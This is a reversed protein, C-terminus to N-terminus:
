KYDQIAKLQIPLEVKAPYFAILEQWTKFIINKPLHLDEISRIDRNTAPNNGDTIFVIYKDSDKARIINRYIQYQKLFEGPTKIKDQLFKPACEMYKKAKAKHRPDEKEKKFGDETFKIEFYIETSGDKIHFDFSTGEYGKILNGDKDVDFLYPDFKEAYEFTCKAGVHIDIGLANKIFMVMKETACLDNDILESFFKMCLQQSSNLHHAYQHLGVLKEGLCKVCDCKTYKKIAVARNKKARVGEADNVPLIYALKTKTPKWIGEDKWTRCSELCKLIKAKYKDYSTEKKLTTMIKNKQNSM